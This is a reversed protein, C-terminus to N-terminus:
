DNIGPIKTQSDLGLAQLVNALDLAKIKTDLRDFPTICHHLRTMTRTTRDNIITPSSRWGNMVHFAMWRSHESITLHALIHDQAIGLSTLHRHFRQKIPCHMAALRNSNKLLEPLKEWPGPDRNELIATSRYKEHIARGEADMAPSLIPDSQRRTEYFSLIRPERKFPDRLIAADRLDSTDQICAIVRDPSLGPRRMLYREAEYLSEFDNEMAFIAMDPLFTDDERISEM